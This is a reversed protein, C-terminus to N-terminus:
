IKRQKRKFCKEEYFKSMKNKMWCNIKQPKMDLLKAVDNVWGFKSFDIESNNIMDIRDITLKKTKSASQEM